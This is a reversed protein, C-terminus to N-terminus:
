VNWRGDGGRSNRTNHWCILQMICIHVKAYGLVAQFRGLADCCPCSLCNRHCASGCVGRVRLRHEDSAGLCQAISWTVAHARQRWRSYITRSQLHRGHRAVTVRYATVIIGCVCVCVCDHSASQSDSLFSILYYM